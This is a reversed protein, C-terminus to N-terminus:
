GLVWRRVKEADMNLAECAYVFSGPRTDLSEFWERAEARTHPGKSALDHLACELLALYLRQEPTERRTPPEVLNYYEEDNYFSSFSSM